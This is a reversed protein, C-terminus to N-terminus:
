IVKSEILVLIYVLLSQASININIQYFKKVQSLPVSSDTSYLDEDAMKLKTLYVEPRCALQMRRVGM